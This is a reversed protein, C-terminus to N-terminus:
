SMPSECSTKQAEVRHIRISHNAMLFLYDGGVSTRTTIDPICRRGREFQCAMKMLGSLCRALSRCRLSRDRNYWYTFRHPACSFDRKTRAKYCALLESFNSEFTLRNHVFHFCYSCDTNNLRERIRWTRGSRHLDSERGPPV